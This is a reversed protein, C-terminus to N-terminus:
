STGRGPVTQALGEKVLLNIARSAPLHASLDAAQLFRQLAREEGILV